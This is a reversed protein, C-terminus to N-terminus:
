GRWLNLISLTAIVAEETRVTKTRQNPISNVVSTFLGPRKEIEPIGERPSGFVIGLDRVKPSLKLGRVDEGYRSTAMIHDLSMRKLTEYLETGPFHVEYGWYKDKPPDSREVTLPSTEVIEFTDRVNESGDGYYLAPSKLGINVNWEGEKEWLFVGERIENEEPESYNPHHPTQLPPLIGVNMLDSDKEFLHKRLYPPTEAYELIKSMFDGAKGGTDYIWIHDVAYISCSRAIQGLKYVAVKPDSTEELFKDPIFVHLSNLDLDNMETSEKYKMNNGYM